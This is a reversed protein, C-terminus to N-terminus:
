LETHDYYYYPTCLVISRIFAHCSECHYSKVFIEKRQGDLGAIAQPTVTVAMTTSKRCDPCFAVSMAEDIFKM